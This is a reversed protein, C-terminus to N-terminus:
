RGANFGDVFDAGGGSVVVGSEGINLSLDIEADEEGVFIKSDSLHVPPRPQIGRSQFYGTLQAPIEDLTQSTLAQSNHRHDNFEVFQVIDRKGPGAFDDLHFMSSFDDDGVGVILVSLPAASAQELCQKTAQLDSVAGDTLILLITYCQDGTQMAAQQAAQARAAATQIVETFVTPGSMILGSSFVSKYARLVGAVGEHEELGGCQFCHRVIGGYKAGFGYVPFKQDADYKGLISLISAMVMEYDNRGSSNLHHLTGPIRPDGNSGTFDIAVSVNLQCGGAIYDVFDVGRKPAVTAAPIYTSTAAPAAAATSLSIGAMKDVIEEGVGATEAKQVYIFGSDKGKHKLKLAENRNAAALMGNVTIELDGMPTHNGSSEHDFVALKLPLELDGGCLVALEIACENWVPSLDNHIDESRYVNDWSQGGAADVKRSLEFFPDSKSFFGEVNKLKEGKLKLRLVGSGTSKRASVFLVGGGKVKKGRTSGRAGLVEAIDFVAAGMSKNDGKRVEDFISFAVKSTTGLEYDLIFVKVWNPNLNNKIVESKGLVKAHSGPSTAIQTAVVFPDSTGKFAGAVNKLRVAHVSLEIKM